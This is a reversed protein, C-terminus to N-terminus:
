DLARVVWIVFLLALMQGLQDQELMRRSLWLAVEGQLKVYFREAELDVEKAVRLVGSNKQHSYAVPSSFCCAKKQFVYRPAAM